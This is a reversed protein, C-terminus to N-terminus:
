SSTLARGVAEPERDIVRLFARAPGSPHRHKQEWDQVTRTSVGFHRAFVAQTMGAKRRIAEVDVDERVHVGYESPDAKGEAFALAERASEVIRSGARSV